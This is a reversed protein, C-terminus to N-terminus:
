PRGVPRPLIYAPTPTLTLTLSGEAATVPSRTAETQGMETIVPELSFAGEGVDIEVEISPTGDEPLLARGPDMWAIWFEGGEGPVAAREIRYVRVQPNTQAVREISRYGALHGMMQQIAYYSPFVQLVRGTWPNIRLAGGWAAIGASAHMPKSTLWSLDTAFALNILRIGQEAAIITRQVHDSAVFGRTWDVTAEDEEVLRTFYAALRCRDAETAPSAILGLRPGDCRDAPGWGIYSTPATDSIVVPKHYGRLETEYTVWKMVYEIEAPEGLNHIDIFDFVEPHDLIARMDELGHQNDVRPTDRWRRDYKSPDDVDMDVPAFLFAAHGILVDDSARHAAEYALRLTELYDGVPEPEYSSLETGIEVYRIPWRLGEMDDIGDADYREVVAEVWRQFLGQYEPRPSGNTSTLRRVDRSAWRSHPKLSLTLETFGQAQYASVFRDLVDFDINEKPGSQMSGWRVAEVDHKMGPIGTAAFAEAM